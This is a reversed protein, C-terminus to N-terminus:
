LTMSNSESPPTKPKSIDSHKDLKLWSPPDIKPNTNLPQTDDSWCEEKFDCWKCRFDEKRDSIRPFDTPRQSEIIKFGRDSINQADAQNFPVMELHIESDNKNMVTFLTQKLDFHAMYLQCQGYYTPKWRKVGKSKFQGFQNDNVMKCEWLAPYPIVDPGATFVGDCHGKILGNADAFSIQKGDEKHTVMTFGAMRFYSALYEEGFHGMDFIRFLRGPFDPKRGHWQYAIKRGCDDGMISAGLYKRRPEADRSSKLAADLLDVIGDLSHDTKKPPKFM